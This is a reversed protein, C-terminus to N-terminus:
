DKFLILTMQIGDSSWYRRWGSTLRVFAPWCVNSPSRSGPAGLPVSVTGPAPPHMRAPPPLYWNANDLILLGGPKLKPVVAACLCGRPASDVLAFELSEDAIAHAALMWDSRHMAEEDDQHEFPILRCDVNTLGARQLSARVEEYYPGASEFSIVRATRRAFWPTSNGSGWEAGADDPRLLSEL